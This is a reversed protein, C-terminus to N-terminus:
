WMVTMWNKSSSRKVSEDLTGQSSSPMKVGTVATSATGIPTIGGGGREQDLSFSTTMNLIYYSFKISSSFPARVCGCGCVFHTCAHRTNILVCYMYMYM